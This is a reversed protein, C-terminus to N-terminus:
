SHMDVELNTKLGIERKNVVPFSPLFHLIDCCFSFSKTPCSLQIRQWKASPALTLFLPKCILMMFILVGNITSSSFIVLFFFLIFVLLAELTAVTFFLSLHYSSCLSLYAYHLVCLCVRLASLWTILCIICVCVTIRQHWETPNWMEGLMFERLGTSFQTPSFMWPNVHQIKFLGFLLM